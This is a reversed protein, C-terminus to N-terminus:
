GVVDPTEWRYSSIKDGWTGDDGPTGTITVCGPPESAPINVHLRRVVAGGLRDVGAPVADLTLRKGGHDDHEFFSIPRTASIVLASSGRDEIDTDFWNNRVIFNYEGLDDHDDRALFGIHKTVPVRDVLSTVSSLLGRTGTAWAAVVAATSVTELLNRLPSLVSMLASASSFPSDGPVMLLIADGGLEQDRFLAAASPLPIPVIQLALPAPPLTIEGTDETTGIRGRVVIQVGLRRTVPVDNLAAGFDPSTLETFLPPVAISVAPADLAGGVVAVDALEAGSDLDTFRWRLDVRIQDTIDRIGVPVTGSISALWGEISGAAPASGLGSTINTIVSTATAPPPWPTVGAEPPLQVHKFVLDLDVAGTVVEVGPIDLIETAAASLDIPTGAVIRGTPAQIQFSQVHSLLSM